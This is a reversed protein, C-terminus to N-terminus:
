DRLRRPLAELAHDRERPAEARRQDDTTDVLVLLLRLRHGALAFQLDRLARELQEGFLVADRGLVDDEVRQDERDAGAVAVIDADPTSVISPIRAILAARGRQLVMRPM